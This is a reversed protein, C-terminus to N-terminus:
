MEIRNHNMCTMKISCLDWLSLNPYSSDVPSHTILITQHPFELEISSLEFSSPIGLLSLFYYVESFSSEITETLSAIYLPTSHIFIPQVATQSDKKM